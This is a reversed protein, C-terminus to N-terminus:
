VWKQEYLQMFVTLVWYFQISHIVCFKCKTQGLIKDKERSWVKHKVSLFLFAQCLYFHMPWKFWYWLITMALSRTCLISGENKSLEKIFLVLHQLEKGFTCAIPNKLRWIEMFNMLQLASIIIKLIYILLLQWWRIQFKNPISFIEDNTIKQPYTSHFSKPASVWYKYTKACLYLVMKDNECVSFNNIFKWMSPNQLGHWFYINWTEKVVSM